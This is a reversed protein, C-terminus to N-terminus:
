SKQLSTMKHLLYGYRLSPAQWCYNLVFNTLSSPLSMVFIVTIWSYFALLCVCLFSRFFFCWKMYHSQWLHPVKGLPLSSSLLSRLVSQVPIRKVQLQPFSNCFCDSKPSLDRQSLSLIVYPGHWTSSWKRKGSCEEAIIKVTSDWNEEQKRWGSRVEEKKRMRLARSFSTEITKGGEGTANRM